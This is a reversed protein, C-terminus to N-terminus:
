HGRGRLSRTGSDAGQVVRGPPGQEVEHGRRPAATLRSSAACASPRDRRAVANWRSRSASAPRSVTSNRRRVPRLPGPAPRGALSYRRAVVLDRDGNRLAVVVEGALEQSTRDLVARALPARGRRAAAGRAPPPGPARRCAPVSSSTTRSWPYSGRGRVGVARGDEGVAREVPQGAPVRVDHAM